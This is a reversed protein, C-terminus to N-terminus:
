LAFLLALAFAILTVSIAAHLDVRAARERETRLGQMALRAAAYGVVTSLFLRGPQEFWDIALWSGALILLAVGFEFVQVPVRWAWRGQADPLWVALWRNTPRGACCGNLLCGIRAFAMGPFICFVATDWFTWFPLRFIALVPVSAALMFPVGGYMALGREGRRWILHRANRFEPWHAMVYLVRSGALALPLLTLTAFYVRTVPLGARPSVLTQLIVGTVIGVYLMAPYSLIRIGRWEFLVRRM